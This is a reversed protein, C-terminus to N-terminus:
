KKIEKSVLYKPSYHKNKHEASWETSHSCSSIGKEDSVGHKLKIGTIM